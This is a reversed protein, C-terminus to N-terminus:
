DMVYGRLAGHPLQAAVDVARPLAALADLYEPFSEWSWRIGEHLATGPIDEVGEMLQVLWERRDPRVPAFGVGCNGLVATTVGHGSSPRLLPDWTAQGDYHTHPDVYGPTVILGDAAVVEHAPEDITGVAAITAGSLAVDARRPAEGTGDVVVGGKIVVDYM